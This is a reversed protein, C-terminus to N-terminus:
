DERFSEEDIALYAILVVNRHLIVSSFSSFSFSGSTFTDSLLRNASELHSIPTM